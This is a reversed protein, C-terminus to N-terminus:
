PKVMVILEEMLPVHDRDGKSKLTLGLKNDGAFPPCDALEIEFRQGPLEGRLEGAPFRKIKGPDIAKGNLTIEVPDDASIHYIWFRMTGELEEGDRGDAMRFPFILGKGINDATFQLVPSNPHGLPSRGEDYWPYNRVPPKRSLMGKGMPLYHYHRPGAYISERTAIAQTWEAIRRRQEPAATKEGGFHIGVNWFSISDAGWAFYNAAAARAEPATILMGQYGKAHKASMGVPRDLIQPPGGWIPGIMNGMVVITDVRAPKTFRTFDDVSLQPDTNNWTCLVVYDVWGKRVWTEIDVGALWCADVSEPVRVGLLQRGVGRRQGAEDLMARIEKMYATMIAAKERGQDRPFHKAWRVFNLELGDVDYENAIERMIALRHARVEPYSYDLATENTRGDPQKIVFEPHDIAFKPCLPSGADLSRHHTDSLRIAALVQKGKAKMHATVVKLADTGEAKLGRIGSTWGETFDDGFRAGYVEGVKTEFTCIDPTTALFVFTNFPVAAAERDLWAKVFQSTGKEPAEFLVQADDNFVTRPQPNKSSQAQSIGSSLQVVLYILALLKVRLM